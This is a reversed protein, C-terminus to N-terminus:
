FVLDITSIQLKKKFFFVKLDKKFEEYLINILLM